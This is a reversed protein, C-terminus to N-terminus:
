NIYKGSNKFVVKRTWHLVPTLSDQSFKWTYRSESVTQGMAQDGIINSAVKMKSGVGSTLQGAATFSFKQSASGDCTKLNIGHNENITFCWVENNSADTVRVPFEIRTERAYFAKKSAEIGVRCTKYSNLFAPVVDMATTSLPGLLMSMLAVLLFMGARMRAANNASSEATESSTSPKNTAPTAPKCKSSCKLV